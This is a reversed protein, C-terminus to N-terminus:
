KVRRLNTVCYYDGDKCVLHVGCKDAYRYQCECKKGNIEYTLFPQERMRQDAKEVLKMACFVGFAIAAIIILASIIESKEM